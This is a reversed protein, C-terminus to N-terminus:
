DWRQWEGEKNRFYKDVEPWQGRPDRRAPADLTGHELFMNTLEWSLLCTHCSATLILDSLSRVKQLLRPMM